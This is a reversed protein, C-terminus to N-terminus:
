CPLMDHLKAFRAMGDRLDPGGIIQTAGGIHSVQAGGDLAYFDDTLDSLGTEFGEDNSTGIYSAHRKARNRPYPARFMDMGTKLIQAQRELKAELLAAHVDPAFDGSSNFFFQHVGGNDFEDAFLGLMLLTREETTFRELAKPADEGEISAPLKRVLDRYLVRLRTFDSLTARKAEIMRWLVPRTEVFSVIRGAFADVSPFERAIELLKLDFANLEPGELYGFRKERESSLTPYVPGFLAMAREFVDHERSLQAAKLADRIEPAISGGSLFFFTHLGDRGLNVKLAYLTVLLRFDPDLSAVEKRFDDGTRSRDITVTVAHKGSAEAILTWFPIRAKPDNALDQPDKHLKCGNNALPPSWGPIPVLQEM